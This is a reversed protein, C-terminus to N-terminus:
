VIWERFLLGTLSRCVTPLVVYTGNHLLLKQLSYIFLVVYCKCVVFKEFFLLDNISVFMLLVVFFSALLKTDMTCCRKCYPLFVASNVSCFEDVSLCARRLSFFKWM